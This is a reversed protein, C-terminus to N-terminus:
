ANVENARMADCCILVKDLSQEYKEWKRLPEMSNTINLADHENIVDGPFLWVHM